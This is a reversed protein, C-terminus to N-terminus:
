AVHIKRLVEQFRPDSRLSAFGQHVPVQTVVPHREAVLRDIWEFADDVRGLKACAIATYFSAQHAGERSRLETLWAEWYGRTGGTEFGRRLAAVQDPPIWQPNIESMAEWQEIAQEIRDQADYTEALNVHASPHGPDLEVAKHYVEIAEDL